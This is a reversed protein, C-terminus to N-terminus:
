ARAPKAAPEAAGGKGGPPAGKRQERRRRASWNRRALDWAWRWQMRRWEAPPLEEGTRRERLWDLLEGATPFWGPRRALAELAARVAPRIEGSRFVFGKALHTAVICVGQERELKEQQSPRLLHAFEPGGEADSASFWWRVYARRPDRYPMSPNFQLTNIDNCTLNRVYTIRDRCLDGWFWPSGEMHGRWYGRPLFRGYVARIWADDVRDPGWYVSERNFSHNAHVKPYAGFEDRFRELARVTRARDSSEMTAGHSAIEFGRHQLDLVFERYEADDLTKSVGFIRSGEPCHVPWVTKTTRMGLDELLRYIPLVNSVKAGDTDDVITFAFRKGGPYPGNNM